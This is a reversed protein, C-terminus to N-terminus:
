LAFRTLQQASLATRSSVDFEHNGPSSSLKDALSNASTTACKYEGPLSADPKLVNM